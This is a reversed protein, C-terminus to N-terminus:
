DLMKELETQHEPYLHSYTEMTEKVDHGMREAIALFNITKKCQIYKDILWCCHSHRFGHPTVVKLGNAVALEKIKNAITMRSLPFLRTTTPYGDKLLVNVYSGLIANLSKSLKITRKGKKSKPEVEENLINLQKEIKLTQSRANYSSIKINLLEGIRIGTYFMVNFMIYFLSDTELGILFQKFEEETYIVKEKQTYDNRIKDLIIESMSLHENELYGLKYSREIIKKFTSIFGNIISPIIKLNTIYEMWSSLVEKTVVEKITIYLSHNNIIYNYIHATLASKQTSYTTSKIRKCRYELYEFFVNKFLPNKENEKIYSLSNNKNEEIEENIILLDDKSEKYDLAQLNGTQLQKKLYKIWAFNKSSRCVSKQTGDEMRIKLNFYYSGNKDQYIGKSRTKKAM